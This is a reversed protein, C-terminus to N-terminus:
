WRRRCGIARGFLALRKAVLRLRRKLSVLSRQNGRVLSEPAESRARGPLRGLGVTGGGGLMLRPEIEGVGLDDSRNVAGYAGAGNADSLKYGRTRLQHRDHWQMGDIDDGVELFCLKGVNTGALRDFDLNVTEGIRFDFAM